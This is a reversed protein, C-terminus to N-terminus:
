IAIRCASLSADADASATAAPKRPITTPPSPSSDISVDLRPSDLRRAAHEQEEEEKEKEKEKEPPPDKPM